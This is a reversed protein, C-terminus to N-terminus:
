ENVLINWCIKKSESHFTEFPFCRLLEQFPKANYRWTVEWYRQCSAICICHTSELTAYSSHNFVLLLYLSIGCSWRICKFPSIVDSRFYLLFQKRVHAVRVDAYQFKKFAVAQGLSKLVQLCLYCKSLSELSSYLVDYFSFLSVAFSRISSAKASTTKRAPIIARTKASISDLSSAVQRGDRSLSV